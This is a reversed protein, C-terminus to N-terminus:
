GASEGFVYPRARGARLEACLDEVTAVERELETACTLFWRPNSYHADSGAVATLGLKEAAGIALQNQQHTNQGNIAEVACLASGTRALIAELRTGFGSDRFPHAPIAVGGEGHVVEILSESQLLRAGLDFRRTLEDTVGLLLLHGLDTDAEIGKFILVGFRASLEAYLRDIEADNPYLRHEAFCVADLKRGSRAALELYAAPDANSDASLRTHVHLDVLM